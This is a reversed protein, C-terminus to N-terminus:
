SFSFLFLFLYPCLFCCFSFSFLLFL